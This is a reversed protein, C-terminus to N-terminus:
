EFLDLWQLKFNVKRISTINVQLPYVQVSKTSFGSIGFGWSFLFPHFPFQSAFLAPAVSCICYFWLFM